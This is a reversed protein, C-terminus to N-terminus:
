EYEKNGGPKIGPELNLKGREEKYARGKSEEWKSLFLFIRNWPIVYFL